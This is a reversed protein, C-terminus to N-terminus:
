AQGEPEMTSDEKKALSNTDISGKYVFFKDYLYECVLNSTMMLGTVLYKNWLLDEALYNGLITTVPTFVCYFAAVKVMALAVNNTAKFTFRRNLTFNWLTSLVVSSLYCPWYPWGTLENLATFVAAQILGASASFLAFKVTRAVEKSVTKKMTKEVKTYKVTLVLKFYSQKNELM